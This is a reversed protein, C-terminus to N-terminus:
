IRPPDLAPICQLLAMVNLASPMRGTLIVTERSITGVGVERSACTPSAPRYLHCPWCLYSSVRVDLLPFGRRLWHLFLAQACNKRACLAYRQRARPCLYRLWSILAPTQPRRFM